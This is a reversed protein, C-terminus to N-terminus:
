LLPAFVRLISRWLLDIRRGPSRTVQESVRLTEEFDAKIQRICPAGCLLVGNEFHLFLSRFDLNVTGVTAFRDDVIFNKAHIFGPVYEYIKVGAELLAPYYARTVQFVAKKDPIRPTIIRVDVGAKAAACLATQTASDPILYPTTIWISRRARSIMNLYVTQGVSEGDLPSDTYPQVYGAADQQPCRGPYFASLEETQRAVDDWVTLFMVTMSWAASGRVLIGSDKWHGFRQRANIYEDALNIGGTFAVTGDVICLKRHDRNNVMRSAVPVFRNFVCCRIGKEELKRRYNRTLTFISGVDDYMVRVDVGQRAKRELLALISDWMQGEEIIFYELFIYRQAKALEAMMRQYYAEGCPFYEAASDAYAPCLAWQELYRIQLSVDRGASEAADGMFDDKLADATKERVGQLAQRLRRPRRWGSFLLYLVWGFVPFPLFVTLWVIKYGPDSRSCVIALAAIFSLAICVWYFQSFRASFRSVMLFLVGVQIIIAVAVLSFRHFLLYVTKKM